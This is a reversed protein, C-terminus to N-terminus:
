PTVFLQVRSLSQVSSFQFSLECSELQVDKKLRCYYYAEIGCPTVLSADQPGYQNFTVAM